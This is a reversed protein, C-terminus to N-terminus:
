KNGGCKGEQVEKKKDAGCKGENDVKKKAAGCSAEKVQKVPMKTGGCKGENEALQHYGSNLETLGFPNANSSAAHAVPSAALSAVFAAGITLSLPNHIKNQKAM